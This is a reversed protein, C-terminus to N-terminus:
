ENSIGLFEAMMLQTPSTILHLYKLAIIEPNSMTHLETMSYPTAKYLKMLLIASAENYKHTLM